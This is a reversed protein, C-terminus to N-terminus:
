TDNRLNSRSVNSGLWSTKGNLVFNAMIVKCTVNRSFFSFLRENLHICM